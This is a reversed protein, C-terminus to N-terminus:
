KASAEIQTSVDYYATAFLKGNPGLRGSQMAEMGAGEMTSQFQLAALAASGTDQREITQAVTAVGGRGDPVIELNTALDRGATGVLGYAIIKAPDEAIDTGELYPAKELIANTWITNVSVMEGNVPVKVGHLARSAVAYKIDDQHRYVAYGAAAAVLVATVARRRTRPDRSHAAAARIVDRSGDLIRAGAKKNRALFNATVAGAVAGYRNTVTRVKDRMGGSLSAVTRRSVGKPMGSMIGRGTERISKAANRSKNVAKGTFQKSKDRYKKLATTAKNKHKKVKSGYSTIRKKTKQLNHKGKSVNRKINGSKRKITNRFKSAGGKSKNIFKRGKSKWDFAEATSDLISEGGPLHIPALPSVAVLLFALALVTAASRWFRGGTWRTVAHGKQSNSM